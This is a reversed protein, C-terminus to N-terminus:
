EVHISHAAFMKAYHDAMMAADKGPIVVSNTKTLDVGKLWAAVDAWIRITAVHEKSNWREIDERTNDFSWSFQASLDAVKRATNYPAKYGGIHYEFAHHLAPCSSSRGELKAMIYGSNWTWYMGKVPDLDGENAGSTNVISDVGITFKLSKYERNPFGDVIIESAATDEIDFLHATSVEQKFGPGELTINSIYFKFADIYITDDAEGVYYRDRLVLPRMNFVPEFVIRIKGKAAFGSKQQAFVAPVLAMQLGALFLIIFCSKKM